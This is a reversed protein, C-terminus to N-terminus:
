VHSCDPPPSVERVHAQEAEPSHKSLGRARVGLRGDSVVCQYVDCNQETDLQWRLVIGDAGASFIEECSLGNITTQVVILSEVWDAHKKFM